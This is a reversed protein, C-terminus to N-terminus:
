KAGRCARLVAEAARRDIRGSQWARTLRDSVAELTSERQNPPMRQLFRRAGTTRIERLLEALPWMPETASAPSADDANALAAILSTALDGAYAACIALASRAAAAQGPRAQKASADNATALVRRAREVAKASALKLESKGLNAANGGHELQQAICSAVTQAYCLLPEAASYVAARDLAAAAAPWNGLELECQASVLLADACFAEPLDRRVLDCALRNSTKALTTLAASQKSEDLSGRDLADALMAWEIQCGVAELIGRQLSDPSCTLGTEIHSRARRLEATTAGEDAAVYAALRWYHPLERCRDPPNRWLKEFANTDLESLVNLASPYVVERLLADTGMGQREASARHKAARAPDGLTAALRACQWHALLGVIPHDTIPAIAEYAERYRGQAELSIALSHTLLPSRDALPRLRLEQEIATEPLGARRMIAAALVHDLEASSQKAPIKLLRAAVLKADNRGRIAACCRPYLEAVQDSPPQRQSKDAVALVVKCKNSRQGLPQQAVVRQVLAQRHGPLHCALPNGLADVLLQLDRENQLDISLERRIAETNDLHALDEIHAAAQTLEGAAIATATRLAHQERLDRAHSARAVTQASLLAMLLLAAATLLSTLPHKTIRRLLRTPLHPPRTKIADGALYRQLDEGFEEASAFRRQPSKELARMVLTELDRDRGRLGLTPPQATLIQQLARVPNEDDFPPRGALVEYLTAGLGYIDARADLGSSSRTAVEPPLYLLTGPTANSQTLISTRDAFAALGFDVVYARGHELVVNAPKIDRHVVGVAHAAALASAIEIGIRAVQAPKLTSPQRDLSRGRLLKMALYARPGDEGADYVPVINPHDLSSTITAERVFRLKATTSSKGDNRMVKLAVERDLSEQRARYVHSTGGIGIPELITFDAIRKPTTAEAWISPPKAASAGACADVLQREQALMREVRTRLEPDGVCLADLDPENGECIVEYCRELIEALRDSDSASAM